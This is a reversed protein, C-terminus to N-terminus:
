YSKVDIEKANWFVQFICHILRTKSQYTRILYSIVL